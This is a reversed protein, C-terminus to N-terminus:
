RRGPRSDGSRKGGGTAPAFTKDEDLIIESVFFACKSPNSGGVRPVPFWQEIGQAVPAYCNVKTSSHCSVCFTEQLKQKIDSAILGGGDTLLSRM